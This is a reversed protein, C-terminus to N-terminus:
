NSKLLSGLIVSPFTYIKLECLPSLLNATTKIEHSNENKQTTCKWSLPKKSHVWPWFFTLYFQVWCFRNLAVKISPDNFIIKVCCFLDDTFYNITGCMFQASLVFPIPILICVDICNHIQKWQFSLGAVWGSLLMWFVSTTEVNASGLGLGSAFFLFCVSM